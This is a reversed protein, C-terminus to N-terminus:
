CQLPKTNQHYVASSLGSFINSHSLANLQLLGAGDVISCAGVQDPLIAMHDPQQDIAEANYAEGNWEGPDGVNTTFLGTSVEMMEGDELAEVVRNDIVSARGEEIWADARLKGGSWRCNMLHGIQQRELVDPDCASIGAGNITPHYVVIPKMNWSPAAKKCEAERYLLPGGSGNHVGETIMAMPAVIYQKNHLTERRTQQHSLNFQLTTLM